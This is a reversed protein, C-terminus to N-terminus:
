DEDDDDATARVTHVEIYRDLVSRKIKTLRGVKVFELRKASVWNRATGKAIGLYEAAAPITLLEDSAM